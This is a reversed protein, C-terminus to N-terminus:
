HLDQPLGCGNYDVPPQGRCDLVMIDEMAETLSTPCPGGDEIDLQEMM